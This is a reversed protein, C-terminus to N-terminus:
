ANLRRALAQDLRILELRDLDERLKEIRDTVFDRESELADILSWLRGIDELTPRSSAEDGSYDLAPQMAFHLLEVLEGAEGFKDRIKQVEEDTLPVPVGKTATSM